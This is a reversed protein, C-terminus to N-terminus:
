GPGRRRRRPPRPLPRRRAPGGRTCPRPASRRGACARPPARSPAAARDLGGPVLLDGGLEDLRQPLPHGGDPAAGHAAAARADGHELPGVRRVGGAVPDGLHDLEGAAGVHEAGRALLRDADGPVVDRGGARVDHDHRRAAVVARARLSLRVREAGSSGPRRGRARPRRRRSTPGARGAAPRRRRPARRPAAGPRVRAGPWHWARRGVRHGAVARHRWRRSKTAAPPWCGPSWRTRTGCTVWGWSM